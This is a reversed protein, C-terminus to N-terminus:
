RRQVTCAASRMPGKAMGGELGREERKGSSGKKTM